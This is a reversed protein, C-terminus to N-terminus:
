PSATCRRYVAYYDVTAVRCFNRALEQQADLSGNKSFPFLVTRFAESVDVLVAVDAERLDELLRGGPFATVGPTVEMNYADQRLRPLLHYLGVDNVAPRVLNNDYVFVTEGPTTEQDLTALLRRLTLATDPEAPLTRGDHEVLSSSPGTTRVEDLLPVFVWGPTAVLLLAGAGLAGWRGWRPGRTARLLDRVVLPLLPISFLGAYVFHVGDARQFAQPLAALSLLALALSLRSRERVAYLCCLLVALLLLVLLQRAANGEPWFPLRSQGAGKGARGGLVNALLAEGALALGIWLPSLGVAVGAAWRRLEPGRGWLLALAPLAALPAVDPRVAVALGAMSGALLAKGRGGDRLSAVNALCLATTTLWAYPAAGLNFLLLASIGGGYTAIARGHPRVLWYTALVLGVHVVVGVTRASTVSAGLVEYAGQLLWWHAPGYATFFDRYPLDGAMMREPYVILITEDLSGAPWDFAMLGLAVTLLVLALPPALARAQTSAGTLAARM